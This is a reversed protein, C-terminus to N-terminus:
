ALGHAAKVEPRVIWIKQTKSKEGVEKVKAEIANKKVRQERLDQYVSEVIYALNSTALTNIKALLVPLHAEPFATKPAPVPKKPGGPGATTSSAAASTPTSTAQTNPGAVRSPLAPVAFDAREKITTSATPIEVPAAVYTFPDIPYPTDNFLEIRYPEFPEYSCRGVTSEWCPGKTFPVLPIVVKRKKSQKSAELTTKRKSPVYPVDLLMLDPSDARREEVPTGPDEVEDDDVLWSDTDSDDEGEGDGAEEEDADEVVDDGGSEEEGEWEEASDYGYDLALVDRGFPARPGVERSSRTWTGFYGPRADETFILVKVPTARRDRLVSLLARVTDDDGTVEAETLQAMISRVSHASYTKMHSQPQRRRPIPCHSIHPQSIIRQLRENADMRSVDVDSGSAKPIEEEDLVIVDGETRVNSAYRRGRAQEFWNLPAIEADKKVVFPRFTKAFDSQSTSPGATQSNGTKASGSSDSRKAPAAKAKGFFSAMISRSKSRAEQEKKEKEAKAAKKELKEREKVAKEPDVSKKPRGPGKPTGVKEGEADQPQSQAKSENEAKDPTDVEEASQVSPKAKLPTRTTNKTGLLSSRADDSLTGFLDQVDQKAQRREAMRAELKERVAKPLWDMHQDKTEWRWINLAAPVKGMGKTSELGYNNRTAVAKIAREIADLPLVSSSDLIIGDDEHTPLLEGQIHKSLAHITKDSEHVLKVVLPLHEDPIKPLADEKREMRGEIFERFRVIGQMTESMKELPLPKQKFVLKGNKLEVLSAKDSKEAADTLDVVTPQTDSASM